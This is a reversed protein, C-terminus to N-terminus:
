LAGEWYWADWVYTGALWTYQVDMAFGASFDGDWAGGGRRGNAAQAHLMVNNPADECPVFNIAEIGTMATHVTDAAIKQSTTADPRVIILKAGASCPLSIRGTDSTPRWLGGENRVNIIEGILAPIGDLLTGDPVTVDKGDLAVKCGALATQLAALRATDLESM